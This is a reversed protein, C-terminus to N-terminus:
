DGLVEKAPADLGHRDILEDLENVLWKRDQPYMIEGGDSVMLDDGM